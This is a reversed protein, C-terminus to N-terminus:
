YRMWTSYDAETYYEPENYGCRVCKFASRRDVGKPPKHGHAECLAKKAKKSINAKMM